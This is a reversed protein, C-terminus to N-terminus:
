DCPQEDPRSRASRESPRRSHATRAASSALPAWVSLLYPQSGALTRLTVAIVLETNSVGATTQWRFELEAAPASSFGGFASFSGSALLVQHYGARAAAYKKQLHQLEALPGAAAWAAAGVGLHAGAASGLFHAAQGSVGQTWGLPLGIRFGATSALEAATLRHWKWGAPLGTSPSTGSPSPSPSASASPTPRGPSASAGPTVSPSASARGSQGPAASTPASAPTALQSGGAVTRGVPHIGAGNATRAAGSQGAHSAPGGFAVGWAIGAALVAAGVGAAVLVPVRRPRPGAPGGDGPDGAGPGGPPCAASVGGTGGAPPPPMTVPQWYVPDGGEAAGGPPDATARTLQRVVQGADPRLAPDKSLLAGIVPALPGASRADPPDETAVGAAVALAGGDRDFPGHGEVAAFLTAGLAWLDSAPSAPGGHVREPATYGPTGVVLGTQTVSPDATFKAIGFDTLVVRGEGTVLVNAPKIDRHLVGAAHATELARALSAGLVAAQAPPIPGNEALLRDLSRGEILEMVIWPSGSEEVVDYVTVVSPHKLRAATRAERLTRQYIEEADAPAAQGTIQVEKVAVARALLEDHGRWVIGMAGRGIPDELRYRGDILRGAGTVAHM